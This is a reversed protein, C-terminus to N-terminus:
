KRVEDPDPLECTAVMDKFPGDVFKIILDVKDKGNRTKHLSPYSSVIVHYLDDISKKM